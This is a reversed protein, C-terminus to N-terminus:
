VAKVFPHEFRNERITRFVEKKERCGEICGLNEFSAHPHRVICSSVKKAPQLVM